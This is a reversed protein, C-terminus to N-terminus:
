DSKTKLMLPSPLALELLPIKVRFSCVIAFSGGGLQLSVRVFGTPSFGAICASKAASSFPLLKLPKHRMGFLRQFPQQASVATEVPSFCPALSLGSIKDPLRCTHRLIAFPM